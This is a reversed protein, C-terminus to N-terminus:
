IDGKLVEKYLEIHKQIAVEWHCYKMIWERSKKGLDRRTDEDDALESLSKFIEEESRVNVVPPTEPYPPPPAPKVYSFVPAGCAMAEVAVLDFIGSRFQDFVIDALNYYRVLEPRKMPKMWIVHDEIKYDKILRKSAEVDGGRDIAILKAKKKTVEIFRAFARFLRDNGKSNPIQKCVWMQRSPHFFILECGLKSRLIEKQSRKKEPDMPRFLQTDVVHPLFRLNKLGLREATPIQYPSLVVARAKRLLNPLLHRILLMRLRRKPTSKLFPDGGYIAVYELDSGYSYFIFPKRALGIWMPAIGTCVVLDFKRVFDILERTKILYRIPNMILETPLPFEKRQIWPPYSSSNVLSRDSWSPLKHHEIRVNSGFTL